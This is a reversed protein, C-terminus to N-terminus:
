VEAYGLKTLTIFGARKSEIWGKTEMSQLAKNLDDAELRGVGEMLPYLAQQMIGEGPRTGMRKFVDLIAREADELTPLTAM